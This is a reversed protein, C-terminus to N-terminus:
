KKFMHDQPTEEVYFETIGNWARDLMKHQGDSVNWEDEFVFKDGDHFTGTTKRRISFMTGKRRGAPFGILPSSHFGSSGIAGEGYGEKVEASGYTM